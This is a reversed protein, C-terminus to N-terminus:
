THPHLKARVQIADPHRLDQLIDLSQQWADRAAAVDGAACRTDGLRALTDAQGFLEGLDRLIGLAHQYCATAHELRGLQHEAYGLSDWAQAQGVRSGALGYLALAQRCFATAQEPCGLLIHYWGIANLALAQGAQDSADQFLGLAQQEHRLADAYRGQHEAVRGLSHRTLAEGARDGLERHLGMCANLHSRAQEYDTLRVCATAIARHAAAQGAMDGLRTAAALASRQTAAWEHWYGRRDLFETMAWPLIWACSDAGIEAALSVCGLLIQHEAEFWALAERHGALREPEVGASMPPLAPVAVRHSNLVLAAAHGTHVYYDLVRRAAARRAAEPEHREAQEAAYARLLDHQGYRGPVHEAALNALALLELAARAAEPAAGLLAAAAPGTIDAGPHVGLLRFLRAPEQGLHECSWSFVTRVDTEPDSTQLSGLRSATGALDAAVAALPVAPRTVARAAAVTLALPLGGSRRALEGVADPEARARRDGIRRCLFERAEADALVDLTILRAGEAALGILRNRSTALVMCGPSGPLLPRIQGADLANDALILVRQGALLSRYLGAQSEPDPPIQGAQRGLADLLRRIATKPPTIGDRPGFGRLNVHLQGDPFAAAAQHAWRVALATKGVGPPGDIVAVMVAAPRGSRADDLVADLAALETVRGTFHPIAAPLQRPVPAQVRSGDAAPLRGEAPGDDAQVSTDLSVPTAAGGGLRRGAGALFVTRSDGGLGLADALRRASGPHPSLVRGLELNSIERVSLGSRDALEQQTMGASRRCASLRTGFM